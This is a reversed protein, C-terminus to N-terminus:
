RQRYELERTICGFRLCFLGRPPNPNPFVATLAQVRETTNTAHKSCFSHPSAFSFRRESCPPPIPSGLHVWSACRGIFGIERSEWTGDGRAHDSNKSANKNSLFAAHKSKWRDKTSLRGAISIFDFLFFLFLFGSMWRKVVESCAGLNKPRRRSTHALCMSGMSGNIDSFEHSIKEHTENM